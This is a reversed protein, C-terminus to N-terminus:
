TFPGTYDTPGTFNEPEEGNPESPGMDALRVTMIEALSAALVKANLQGSRSLAGGCADLMDQFSASATRLVKGDWCTVAFHDQDYDLEYHATGGGGGRIEDLVFDFEEQDLPQFLRMRETTSIPVLSHSYMLLRDVDSLPSDPHDVGANHVTFLLCLVDQPDGFKETEYHSTQGKYTIAYIGSQIPPKEM